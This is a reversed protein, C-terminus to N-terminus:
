LRKLYAIIQRKQTADLSEPPLGPFAPPVVRPLHLSPLQPLIFRSYIDAPDELLRAAVSAPVLTHHDDEVHCTACARGNTNPLPNDFLHKGIQAPLGLAGSADAVDPTTDEGCATLAAIATTPLILRLLHM